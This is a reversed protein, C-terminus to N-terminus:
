DKPLNTQLVCKTCHAPYTITHNFDDTDFTGQKIVSITIPIAAVVFSRSPNCRTPSANFQHLIKM